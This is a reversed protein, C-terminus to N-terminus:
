DHMWCMSRYEYPACYATQRTALMTCGRVARVDDLLSGHLRAIARGNYGYRHWPAIGPIGPIGPHAHITM